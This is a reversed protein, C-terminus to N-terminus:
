LEGAKRLNERDLISKETESHGLGVVDAWTCRSM